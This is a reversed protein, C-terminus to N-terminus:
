SAAANCKELEPADLARGDVTFAQLRGVERALVACVIAPRSNSKGGACQAEGCHWVVDRLILKPKLPKASLVAHYHPPAALAPASLMFISLATLSIRIM